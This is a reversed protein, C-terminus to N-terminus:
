DATRLLAPTWLLSELPRRSRGASSSTQPPSKPSKPPPSQRTPSSQRQPPSQGRVNTSLKRRTQRSPSPIPDSHSRMPLPPPPTGRSKAAPNKSFDIDFSPKGPLGSSKRFPDQAWTLEAHRLAKELDYYLPSDSASSEEIENRRSSVRSKHPNHITTIDETVSIVTTSPPSSGGLETTQLTSPVTTTTTTITTTSTTTTTTTTTTSTSTSTLTTVEEPQIQKHSGARARFNQRLDTHKSTILNVLTTTTSILNVLTTTTSYENRNLKERFGTADIILENESNFRRRTAKSNNKVKRLRKRSKKSIINRITPLFSGLDFKISNETTPIDLPITQIDVIQTSPIQPASSTEIATLHNRQEARRPDINLSEITPQSSTNVPKFSSKQPEIEYKNATQRTPQRRDQSAARARASVLAGSRDEKNEEKLRPRLRRQFQRGVNPDKEKVYETQLEPNTKTNENTRQPKVRIRRQFLGSGPEVDKESKFNEEQTRIKKIIKKRNGIKNKRSADNKTAIKSIVNKNRGRLRSRSKDRDDDDVNVTNLSRETGDIEEKIRFRRQSLTRTRGSSRGSPSPLSVKSRSLRVVEQTAGALSEEAMRTRSMKQRPRAGPGAESAESLDPATLLAILEEKQSHDLLGPRGTPRVEVAPLPVNDSRSSVAPFHSFQPVGSLSSIFSIFSISWLLLGALMM